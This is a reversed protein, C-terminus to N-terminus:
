QLALQDQGVWGSTGTAFTVNWWTTGNVVTGGALITGLAGTSQQGKTTGGAADRVNIQGAATVKIKAGPAFTGAPPTVVPPTVVPPTTGTKAELAAIRQNFTGAQTTLAAINAGDQTISGEAGAMHRQLELIAASGDYVPLFPASVTVGQSHTRPVGMEFGIGFSVALIGMISLRVAWTTM